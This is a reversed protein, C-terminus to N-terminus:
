TGKSTLITNSVNEWGDQKKYDELAEVIIEALSILKKEDLRRGLLQISAPAGNYKEPDDTVLPSSM